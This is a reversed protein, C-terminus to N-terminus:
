KVTWCLPLTPLINKAWSTSNAVVHSHGEAMKAVLPALEEALGNEYHAAEVKVVKSVGALKAAQDAVGGCNQGAILITIDSGMQTAATVANATGPNLEKNDHEAILLISM